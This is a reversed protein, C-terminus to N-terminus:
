ESGERIFRVWKQICHLEHDGFDEHKMFICLQERRTVRIVDRQTIIIGGIVDRKDKNPYRDYILKSPQLYQPLVSCSAGVGQIKKRPTNSIDSM